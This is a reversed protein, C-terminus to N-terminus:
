EKPWYNTGILQNHGSCAYANFFVCQYKVTNLSVVEHVFLSTNVVSCGSSQFFSMAHISGQWVISTDKKLILSLIALCSAIDLIQSKRM